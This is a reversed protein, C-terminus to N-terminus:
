RSRRARLIALGLMLLPISGPVPVEGPPNEDYSTKVAGLKLGDDGADGGSGFEPNYVGILWTTSEINSPNVAYYGLGVNNYNGVSDYGGGNTALVDSWTEGLLGASGSGDWALLSVDTTNSFSGGTAWDLDIHTLSVATDFELLLMDFEGDPDSTISDTSHNPSSTNPEDRNQVGLASNQAWLLRANEVEDEGSLDDTDSWATVTLGVGGSSMDLSNGFNNSSFSQSNHFDWTQVSAMAPLSMLTGVVIGAAALGAKKTTPIM